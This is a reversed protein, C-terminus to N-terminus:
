DGSRSARHLHRRRERRIARQADCDQNARAIPAADRWFTRVLLAAAFGHRVAASRYSLPDPMRPPRSVLSPPPQPRANAVEIRELPAAVMVATLLTALSSSCPCEGFPSDAAQM